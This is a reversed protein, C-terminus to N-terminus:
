TKPIHQAYPRSCTVRMKSSTVMPLPILRKELMVEAQPYHRDKFYISGVRYYPDPMKPSIDIAKVYWNIAEQPKKEGECANGINYLASSFKPDAAFAQMWKEKAEKVKGRAYLVTALGNLTTARDPKLELSKQFAEMARNYSRQAAYINGLNSWAPELRGDAAIAAKYEEIAQNLFGSGHLEVGKNYHKIAEPAFPRRPDLNAASNASDSDKAKDAPRSIDDSKSAAPADTAAQDPQKAQKDSATQSKFPQGALARTPVQLSILVLALIALSTKQPNKM